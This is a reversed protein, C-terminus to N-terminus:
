FRRGGRRLHLAESEEEELDQTNAINLFDLMELDSPKEEDKAVNRATGTGQFLPPATPQSADQAQSTSAPQVQPLFPPPPLTTFRFNRLVPEAEQRARMEAFLRQAESSLSVVDAQGQVTRLHGQRNLDAIRTQSEYVRFARSIQNVSLDM